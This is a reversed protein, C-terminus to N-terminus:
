SSSCSRCTGTAAFHGADLLFGCRDAVAEAVLDFVEPGAEVVKGCRKCTLYWHRRGEVAYWQSPGHDLHVHDVVGLDELLALTRYVTSEPFGPHQARIRALLEEATSLENPASLLSELVIRRSTTSRGGRQRILRVAEDVVAPGHTDASGARGGAAVSAPM